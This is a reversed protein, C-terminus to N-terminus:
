WERVATVWKSVSVHLIPATVLWIPDSNLHMQYIRLSTCCPPSRAVDHLCLWQESFNNPMIGTKEMWFNLQVKFRQHANYSCLGFFFIFGVLSLAHEARHEVSCWGCYYCECRVNVDYDWRSIDCNKYEKRSKPLNLEIKFESRLCSMIIKSQNRKTNNNKSLEMSLQPIEHWPHICRLCWWFHMANQM